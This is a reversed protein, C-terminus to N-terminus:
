KDRDPHSVRIDKNKDISTAFYVHKVINGDHLTTGKISITQESNYESYNSYILFEKLSIELLYNFDEEKFNRFCTMIPNRNLRSKDNTLILSIRNSRSMNLELIYKGTNFIIESYSQRHENGVGINYIKKYITFFILNLSYKHIVDPDCLLEKISNFELLSLVPLHKLLRYKNIYTVFKKGYDTYSNYRLILLERESLQARIIKAYRAKEIPSINAKEILDFIRFLVRFYPALAQANAFYLYLYKGYVSKNRRLYSQTNIKLNSYLEKICREFYDSGARYSQNNGYLVTEKHLSEVQRQHLAMLEFFLTNFRQLESQYSEERISEKTLSQQETNIRSTQEKQEKFILCTIIVGIFSLFPGVVGGIFDGINGCLGNDLVYERNFMHIPRNWACLLGIILCISFFIGITIILNKKSLWNNHKSNNTNM